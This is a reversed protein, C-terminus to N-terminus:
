EEGGVGALSRGHGRRKVFGIEGVDTQMGNFGEVGDGDQLGLDGWGATKGEIASPSEIGDVAFPDVAFASGGDVGNAGGVGGVERGDSESNGGVAALNGCAGESEGVSVVFGGFPEADKELLLDDDAIRLTAEGVVGDGITGRNDGAGRELGDGIPKGAEREFIDAAAKAGREFDIANGGEPFVLEEAFVFAADNAERDTFNMEFAAIGAGTTGDRRAIGKGADVEVTELFMEGVLALGRKGTPGRARAEVVEVAHGGIGADGGGFGALEEAEM